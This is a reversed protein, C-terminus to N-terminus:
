EFTTASQRKIQLGSTVGNTSQWERLRSCTTNRMASEMDVGVGVGGSGRDRERDRKIKQTKMSFSFRQETTATYVIRIQTSLPLRRVRNQWLLNHNFHDGFQSQQHETGSCPRDAMNNKQPEIFTSTTQDATVPIPLPNIFLGSTTSDPFDKHRRTHHHTNQFLHM